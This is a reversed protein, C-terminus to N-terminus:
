RFHVKELCQALGGEGVNHRKPGLRHLLLINTYKHFPRSLGRSALPPRRHVQGPHHQRDQGRFVPQSQPRAAHTRHPQGRAPLRVWKAPYKEDNNAAFEAPAETLMMHRTMTHEGENLL